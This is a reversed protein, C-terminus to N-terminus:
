DVIIHVTLLITLGRQILLRKLHRRIARLGYSHLGYSQLGYSQRGYSYIPALDGRM